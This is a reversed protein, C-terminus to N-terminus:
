SSLLRAELLARKTNAGSTLLQGRMSLPMLRHALQELHLSQLRRSYLNAKSQLSYFLGVQPIGLQATTQETAGIGILQPQEALQQAAGLQSNILCNVSAELMAMRGDLITRVLGELRAGQQLVVDRSNYIAALIQPLV